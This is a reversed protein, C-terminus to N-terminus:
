RNHVEEIDASRGSGHCVSCSEEVQFLDQRNVYSSGNPASLMGGNQMMHAMADASTHCMFCSAATPSNVWDYIDPVDEFAAVADETTADQGDSAGTTRVTSPLLGEELPLEYSGSKHCLMCNSTEAGRPFTIHSWDYLGGHSGPRVHIFARTRFDSSHIGHVLDKLNQADEPYTLPDKPDVVDGDLHGADIAAQIDDQMDQDPAAIM